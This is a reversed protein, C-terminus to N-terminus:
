FSRTTEEVPSALRAGSRQTPPSAASLSNQTARSWLRWTDRGGGRRCGSSPRGEMGCLSPSSLFGLGLQVSLGRGLSCLHQRKRQASVCDPHWKLITLLRRREEQFHISISLHSYQAARGETVQGSIGRRREKSPEKHVHSFTAHREKYFAFLRKKPLLFSLLSRKGLSTEKGM